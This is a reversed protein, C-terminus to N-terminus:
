QFRRGADASRRARPPGPGPRFCGSSWAKKPSGAAQLFAEHGRRDHERREPAFLVGSETRLLAHIVAMPIRRRVRNKLNPRAHSVRVYLVLGRDAQDDLRHHVLRATGTRARVRV